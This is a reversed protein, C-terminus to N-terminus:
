TGVIHLPQPPYLSCWHLLCLSCIPCSHIWCTFSELTCFEIGVQPLPYKSECLFHGEQAKFSCPSKKLLCLQTVYANELPIVIFVFIQHAWSFALLRMHSSGREKGCCLTTDTAQTLSGPNLDQSWWETGQVAKSLYCSWEMGWNGYSYFVSVPNHPSVLIVGSIGPTPVHYDNVWYAATLLVVFPNQSWHHLAETSGQTSQAESFLCVVPPEAASFNSLGVQRCM